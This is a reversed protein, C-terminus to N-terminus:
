SPEIIKPPRRRWLERIESNNRITKPTMRPAQPETEAMFESLQESLKTLTEPYNRAELWRRALNVVLHKPTPRGALGTKYTKLKGPSNTDFTKQISFDMDELLSEFDERDLHVDHWLIPVSGFLPLSSLRAHM